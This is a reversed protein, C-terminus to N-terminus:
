GDRWKSMERGRGTGGLDGYDGGSTCPWGTIRTVALGPSFHAFASVSMELITGVPLWEPYKFPRVVTVMVTLSNSLVLRYGNRPGGGNKRCTKPDPNRRPCPLGMLTIEDGWKGM